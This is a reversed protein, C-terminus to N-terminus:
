VSAGMSIYADAPCLNQRGQEGNYGGCKFYLRAHLLYELLIKNVSHFLIEGLLENIRTKGEQVLNRLVFSVEYDEIM